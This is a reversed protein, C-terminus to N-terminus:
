PREPAARRIQRLRYFRQAARFPTGQRLKAYSSFDAFTRKPATMIDHFEGATLGFKKIVYETDARQLDERTRRSDCLRASRKNGASKGSCILSSLHTKRKDYGFRTPLFWGQYWRTYVNEHHKGGYSRWGLDRQM